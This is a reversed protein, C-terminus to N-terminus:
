DSVIVNQQGNNEDFCVHVAAIVILLRRDLAALHADTLVPAIHSWELLRYLLVSAKEYHLWLLRSWTSRRLRM